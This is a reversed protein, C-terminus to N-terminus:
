FLNHWEKLRNGPYVSEGLKKLAEAAKKYARPTSKQLPQIVEVFFTKLIELWGPFNDGMFAYDDIDSGLRRGDLKLFHRNEEVRTKKEDKEKYAVRIRKSNRAAIRAIKMLEGYDYGLELRPASKEVVSEPATEQNLAPNEFVVEEESDIDRLADQRARNREDRKRREEVSRKKREEFNRVVEEEGSPYDFILRALALAERPNRVGHFHMSPRRSRGRTAKWAAHNLIRGISGDPSKLATRRTLM